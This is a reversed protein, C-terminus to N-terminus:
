FECFGGYDKQDDNLLPSSSMLLEGLVPYKLYKVGAVSYIKYEASKHTKIFIQLQKASITYLKAEHLMGQENYVIERIEHKLEKNKFLCVQYFSTLSPPPQFFFDSVNPQNIFNYKTGM